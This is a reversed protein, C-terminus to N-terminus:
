FVWENQCLPKPLNRPSFLIREPNGLRCQNNQPYYQSYSFLSPIGLTCQGSPVTGLFLDNDVIKNVIEISTRASRSSNPVYQTPVTRVFLFPKGLGEYLVISMSTSRKTKSCALSSFQCSNPPSVPPVYICQTCHVVSGGSSDQFSWLPSM